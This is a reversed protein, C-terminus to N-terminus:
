NWVVHELRETISFLPPLIWDRTDYEQQIEYILSIRM